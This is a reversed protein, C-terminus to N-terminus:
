FRFNLPYNVNVVGGGSPKPFVMRRFVRLICKECRPSKLTSRRISAKSVKGNTGITFSVLLRGRLKPNKVLQREYCFKIRKRSNRVVTLISKRSLFGRKVGTSAITAKRQLRTVKFVVLVRSIQGKDNKRPMGGALVYEGSRVSLRAKLNSSTVFQVNTGMRSTSTFSRMHGIGFTLKIDPNNGSGEQLSLRLATSYLSTSRDLGQVVHRNNVTRVYFSNQLVFGRARTDHKKLMTYLGKEGATAPSVKGNYIPTVFYLRVGFQSQPVDLQAAAKKLTKLVSPLSRVLIKQLSPSYRITTVSHAHLPVFIDRLARMLRSGDVHRVPLILTQTQQALKRVSPKKGKKGKPAANATLSLGTILLACLGQLFLSKLRFM